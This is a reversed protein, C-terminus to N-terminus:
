VPPRRRSLSTSHLGVHDLVLESTVSGTGGSSANAADGVDLVGVPERGDSAEPMDAPRGTTDTRPVLNLRATPRCMRPTSTQLSSVGGFCM